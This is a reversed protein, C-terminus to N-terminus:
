RGQKWNFLYDIGNIKVKVYLDVAKKRPTYLYGTVAEGPHVTTRELYGLDEPEKDTFKMRTSEDLKRMRCIRKQFEKLTDSTGANFVKAGLNANVSAERVSGLVANKKTYKRIKENYEETSVLEYNKRKNNKLSYIEIQRPDIDVNIMSKNVIFLGIERYDGINSTISNSAGVILGNKNYYPWAVGNKYETSVEELTPAELVPQKDVISYKSYNGDADVIVYFGEPKDAKYPTLECVKGDETFAAYLGDRLGDNVFFHKKINGNNYYITYEGQLKGDVYNKSEEVQGDKFYSVFQDTFKSNSDDAKDLELFSGESQLEGSIYYTKFEKTMSVNAPYLALRCYSAFAKNSTVKWNKNYYITDVRDQPVVPAPSPTAVTDVVVPKATQPPMPLTVAKNDQQKEEAAVNDKVVVKKVVKKKAGGKRSQANVSTSFVLIAAFLTFCRMGFNNRISM